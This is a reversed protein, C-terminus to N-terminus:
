SASRPGFFAPDLSTVAHLVSAAVDSVAGVGDVHAVRDVPVLREAERYVACLRTQLERSEFMEELGGRSRRREEAVEIPV